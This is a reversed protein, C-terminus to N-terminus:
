TEWTACSRSTSPTTRSPGLFDNWWRRLGEHGHYGGEVAGLRSEAEVEEDAIALFADLDRRNFADYARRALEVNEQSM